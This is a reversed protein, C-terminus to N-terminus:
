RWCRASAPPASSRSRGAPRTRPAPAAARRCPPFIACTSCTPLTCTSWRSARAPAPCAVAALRRSRVPLEAQRAVRPRRGHRRRQRWAGGHRRRCAGGPAGRHRRPRRRDHGPQRARRRLRRRADHRRRRQAGRRCRADARRPRDRAAHRERGGHRRRADRWAADRRRTVFARRRRRARRAARHRQHERSRGADRGAHRRRPRAHRRLRAGWRDHRPRRARGRRRVAGRRRRDHRYQCLSRRERRNGGTDRALNRCGLGHRRGGAGAARHDRRCPPHQRRQPLNDGSVDLTGGALAVLGANVFRAASIDLTPAVSETWTLQTGILADFKGIPQYVVTTDLQSAPVLSITGQNAITGGGLVTVVGAVPAGAGGLVQTTAGLLVTRGAPADLAVVGALAAAIDLRFTEGIYRGAALTLTGTAAIPLAANAAATAPTITVDALGAFGGQVVTGDLTGGEGVVTGGAPALTGGALTGALDLTGGALAITGAVTLAGGTDLRLTGGPLALAAAAALVGPAIEATGLGITTDDAAGPVAFGSWNQASTWSGAGGRWTISGGM